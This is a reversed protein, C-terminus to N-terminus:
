EYGTLEMYGRGIDDGREDYVRVLGEWYTFLTNMRQDDVAAEVRLQRPGDPGMVSLAWAVPWRVGDADRWWRQPQLTFDQTRLARSSGDPRVWVGQDYPDRVGSRRRLQFVMLEEGSDLQLGFWDWGTQEETLLSTSWERDLWANGTVQFVQDDLQIEGGGALRPVSYYYSAQNPGKASLGRDGQPVVPKVPDFELRVAFDASRGTVALGELGPGRSTLQWGDLWADLPASSVGALRPHARALREAHRHRGGAVDTVALHGLYIQSADWPSATLPEAALGQRFLTFQVGFERGDATALNATLYWWESRYDPHAGHDRPFEFPRSEQARLFGASDTEGLVSGLRLAAGHSHGILGMLVLLLASTRIM